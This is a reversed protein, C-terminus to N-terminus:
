PKPLVEYIKGRVNHPANTMANQLTTAAGGQDGLKGQVYAMDFMVEDSLVCEPHVVRLWALHQLSENWNRTTSMALLHRAYPAYASASDEGAIFSRFRIKLEPNTFNSWSRWAAMEEM